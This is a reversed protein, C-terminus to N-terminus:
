NQVWLASVLARPDGIRHAAAVAGECLARGREREGSWYYEGALKAMLAARESPDESGPSSLAEALMSKLGADVAFFSSFWTAAGLAARSLLESNGLSRAADFAEEFTKRAETLSRGRAQTDGLELLLEYRAHRDPKQGAALAQLAMGYLQSAESYAFQNRAH